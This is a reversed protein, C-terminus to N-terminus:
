ASPWSSRALAPCPVVLRYTHQPRGGAVMTSSTSEITVDANAFVAGHTSLASVVAARVDAETMAAASGAVSPEMLVTLTVVATEARCRPSLADLDVRARVRAAAAATADASEATAVLHRKTMREWRSTGDDGGTAMLSDVGVLVGNWCVSRLGTGDVADAPPCATRALALQETCMCADLLLAGADVAPACAAFAALVAVGCPSSSAYCQFAVRPTCRPMHDAALEADSPFPPLPPRAVASSTYRLVFESTAQWQLQCVYACLEGGLGPACRPRLTV